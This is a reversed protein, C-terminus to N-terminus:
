SFHFDAAEIKNYIVAEEVVAAVGGLKGAKNYNDWNKVSLFPPYSGYYRNSKVSVAVCDYSKIYFAAEITKIEPFYVKMDRSFNGSRSGSLNKYIGNKITYVGNELYDGKDSDLDDLYSVIARHLTSANANAGQIKAKKVYGLMSPVLIAALIGIIAIVVILEILTFGKLKRKM